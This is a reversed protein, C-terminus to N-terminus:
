KSEKLYLLKKEVLHILSELSKQQNIQTSTLLLNLKGTKNKLLLM